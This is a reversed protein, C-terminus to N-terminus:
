AAARLHPPIYSGAPKTAPKAKAATSEVAKPPPSPSRGFPFLEASMPRIDIQYMENVAQEHALAGTYHWLKYGNDVRLRPSLTATLIYRGDPLWECYSSGSADVSALKKLSNRDWIDMQGALNGFGGICIFKGQPSFRILNRSMEGFKHVPSARHDFLTIRAPMFGYIVAFEKSNPNWIVDHVPGEKDLDVRCDFNGAVTLFYLNTEGYYSKGTRDIDTQTMVLLNTGISNWMFSVRDAKYFSKSALPQKFNPTSYIRVYAPAGKKEGVFIAIALNKGPSLSYSTLGQHIMRHAPTTSFTSTSFLQVENTVMRSLYQEDNDWQIKWGSPNKQIFEIKKQGDKTSYIILNPLPVGDEGKVSRELVSIYSGKPSFEFDQITGCSIEFLQKYQHADYIYLKDNTNWALLDGLPSYSLNKINGSVKPFKKTLLEANPCGKGLELGSSNRFAFQTYASTEM